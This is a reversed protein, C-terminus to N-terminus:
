VVRGVTQWRPLKFLKLKSTRYFRYKSIKHM